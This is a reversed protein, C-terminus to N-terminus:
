NFACSYDTKISTLLLLQKIFKRRIKWILLRTQTLPAGYKEVIEPVEYPITALEPFDYEESICCVLRELRNYKNPNMRLIINQEDYSVSGFDVSFKCAIFSGVPLPTRHEFIRYPIFFMCFYM